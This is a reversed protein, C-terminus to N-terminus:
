MELGLFHIANDRVIKRTEAPSVDELRQAIRRTAHCSAM